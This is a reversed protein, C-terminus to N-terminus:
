VISYFSRNMGAVLALGDQHVVQVAFKESTLENAPSVCSTPISVPEVVMVHQENLDQDVLFPFM